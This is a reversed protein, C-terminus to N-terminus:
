VGEHTIVDWDFVADPHFRYESGGFEADTNWSRMGISIRMRHEQGLGSASNRDGSGVSSSESGVLGGGMAGLLLYTRALLVNAM